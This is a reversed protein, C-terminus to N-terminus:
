DALYFPILITAQCIDIGGHRIHTVALTVLPPALSFVVRETILHDFWLAHMDIFM